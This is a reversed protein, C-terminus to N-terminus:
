GRPRWFFLKEKIRQRIGKPPAMERDNVFLLSRGASSPRQVLTVAWQASIAPDIGTFGSMQTNLHGPVWEHVEIDHGLDAIDAAIAKSLAHIAGKSCSYAASRPIPAGDAFSGVNYIRGFGAEIMFPLVAKACNAPGNVNIAIAEAWAQASEELFSVKPYVAANNFLFDIRGHRAVIDRVASEVAAFDKVDVVRYEFRGAAAKSKTEELSSQRRGFGVVRCGQEAFQISLARGLGSGAGTIAVVKDNLM